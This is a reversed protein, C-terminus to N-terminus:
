STYHYTKNDRLEEGFPYTLILIIISFFLSSAILSTVILNFAEKSKYRNIAFRFFSTEMGHMYFAKIIAIYAYIESVIGYNSASLVSIHLPVLLYNLLRALITIFGYITLDSVLRKIM